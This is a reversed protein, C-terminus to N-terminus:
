GFFEHDQVLSLVESTDVEGNWEERKLTYTMAPPPHYDGGPSVTIQLSPEQEEEGLAKEPKKQQQLKTKSQQQRRM